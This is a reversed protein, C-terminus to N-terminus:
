GCRSTARQPTRGAEKRLFSAFLLSLAPCHSRCTNHRSIRYLHSTRVAPAGNTKGWNTLIMCGYCSVQVCYGIIVSRLLESSRKAAIPHTCQKARARPLARVLMMIVHYLVREAPTGSEQQNAPRFVDGDDSNGIGGQYGV